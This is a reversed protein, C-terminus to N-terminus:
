VHSTWAWLTSLLLTLTASSGPSGPSHVSKSTQSRALWGVYRLSVLVEASIWCNKFHSRRHLPIEVHHNRTTSLPVHQNPFAEMAPLGVLGPEMLELPAFADEGCASGSPLHRRCGAIWGYETCSFAASTGQGLLSDIPFRRSPETLWPIILGPGWLKQCDVANLLASRVPSNMSGDILHLQAHLAVQDLYGLHHRRRDGGLTRRRFPVQSIKEGLVVVPDCQLFCERDAPIQLCDTM